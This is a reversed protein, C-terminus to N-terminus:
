RNNAPNQGDVIITVNDYGLGEFLSKLFRNSNDQARGPLESKEAAERIKQEARQNLAQQDTPDGNSLMEGFRDLLGRDRSVLRTANPDIRPASLQAAPVHVTISKGDESVQIADETLSSFETWGEVEGEAVFLEHSGKLFDPLYDADQESDIITTFRGSASVYRSQNRLEALVVANPNEKKTESFPNPFEVNMVRMALLAVVIVVFTGAALAVLRGRLTRREAARAARRDAQRERTRTSAM